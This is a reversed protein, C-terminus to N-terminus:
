AQTRITITKEQTYLAACADGGERGIGSEKWGGFPARLERTMPTNVWVVGAQIAHACTLAKDINKTWVYAVLGFKSANAMAIAEAMTDFPIITAFPGFIEEQCIIRDNDPARAVIPDIYFGREFGAARTGGSLIECGDGRAKEVFSLVRDMHAKNQMPGLETAPDSPAGIRMARAKAVLADSFKEVLDRQVFVRTGNLCQQGNGAFNALSVGALAAEFDCDDFVIAASKGGLEMTAPKLAQGAAGAIARGTSTGGTFSVCDILPHNTLAAGTVHGRGNVLNVAGDPVGADKLIEMMIPFTLPTQESPKLVVTCGFALAAATKMMGLGLPVNWPAILAAVGIPQRVVYTVVGPNDAFAVGRSQTIYDAFFRFNLATRPIHMFKIQTIPMGTHLCELRALDESRADIMDAAKRLIRAREAPALKPWPGEDFAARAARVAADVESADAELLEAIMEESAPDIVPIRNHARDPAPAGGLWSCILGEQLAQRAM